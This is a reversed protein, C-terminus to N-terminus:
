LAASDHGAVCRRCPWSWSWAVVARPAPARASFRRTTIPSSSLTAVPRDKTQVPKSCGNTRSGARSRRVSPAVRTLDGRNNAPNLGNSGTRVLILPAEAGFM